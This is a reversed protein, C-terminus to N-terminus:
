TFHASTVTGNEMIIEFMYMLGSSTFMEGRYITEYPSTVSSYYGSYLFYTAPALGDYRAVFPIDHIVCNKLMNFFAKAQPLRDLDAQTYEEGPTIYETPLKIIPSDTPMTSIETMTCNGDSPHYEVELNDISGVLTFSTFKDGSYQVDALRYEMYSLHEAGNQKFPESFRFVVETNTEEALSILDDYNIGLTEMKFPSSLLNMLTEGVKILAIHKQIHM